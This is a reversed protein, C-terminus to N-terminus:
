GDQRSADAVLRPEHNKQNVCPRQQLPFFITMTDVLIVRAYFAVALEYPLQSALIIDDGRRFQQLQNLVALDNGRM